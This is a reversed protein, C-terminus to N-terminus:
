YLIDGRKIEFVLLRMRKGDAQLEVQGDHLRGGSAAVVNELDKRLVPWIDKKHLRMYDINNEVPAPAIAAKGELLRKIEEPAALDSTSGRRIWVEHKRFCYDQMYDVHDKNFRFCQRPQPGVQVMVFTKGQHRKDIGKTSPWKRKILKVAPVPHINDRALRQLRDDARADTLKPNTVSKFGKGDDSVGIILYNSVYGNNALAIIDKLFEANDKQSAFANFELKFDV